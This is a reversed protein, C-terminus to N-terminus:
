ASAPCETFQLKPLLCSPCSIYAAFRWTPVASTLLLPVSVKQMASYKVSLAAAWKAAECEDERTLAKFRQVARMVNLVLCVKAPSSLEADYGECLKVLLRLVAFGIEEVFKGQVHSLCIPLQLLLCWTIHAQKLTCPDRPM